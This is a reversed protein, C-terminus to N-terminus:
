GQGNSALFQQHTREGGRERKSSPKGSPSPPSDPRQGDGPQNQTPGNADRPSQDSQRQREDVPKGTAKEGADRKGRQSDTTDRDRQDPKFTDNNRGPQFSSPPEPPQTQQVRTRQGPSLIVMVEPRAFNSVAVEGEHVFVQTEKESVIVDFLTGRVAIVTTPTNVRYPNPRGGVKEIKIRTKGRLVNFITRPSKSLDAIEVITKEGIIAQSGDLLGLVLRGSAYTKIVDGALLEDNVRYTIKMLPSQGQARREIEVPGSSSLIRASVLTQAQANLSAFLAALISLCSFTVRKLLM